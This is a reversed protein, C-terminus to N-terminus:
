QKANGLVYTAPRCMAYIVGMRCVILRGHGVDPSRAQRPRTIEAASPRFDASLPAMPAAPGPNIDSIELLCGGCFSVPLSRAFMTFQSHQLIGYRLIM